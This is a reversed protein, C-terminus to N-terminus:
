RAPAIGRSPVVDFVLAAPRSGLAAFSGEIDDMVDVVFAWRGPQEPAIVKVRARQLRDPALPVMRLEAPKIAVPEPVTGDAAPDLSVPIWYGMARTSRLGAETPAGKDVIDEAWTTEGTNAVNLSVKLAEGAVLARKPADIRVHASRPGPVFVPVDEVSAVQRGFRRETFSLAALYAGPREPLPATVQLSRHAFAISTRARRRAARPCRESTWRWCPQM